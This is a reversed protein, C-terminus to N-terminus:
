ETSELQENQEFPPEAASAGKYGEIFRRVALIVLAVLAVLLIVVIGIVLHWLQM